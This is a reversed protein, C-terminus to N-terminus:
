REPRERGRDESDGRDSGGASSTAPASAAPAASSPTASAPPSGPPAARVAEALKDLPLYLINGGSKADIVIKRSRTLIGEMTEIYMRSRTVEPAQAYAGALESFREAEGEASAVTQKAYVDADTLERQATTQAKPVVDSAYANAEDIMRRRDEEAKSADRQATLVADPLQLDTMLVSTVAIGAQYIDLARQIRKQAETTIQGRADGDLLASLEYQGILERLATDSVERLTGAQDRVQFLYHVPDTVRYQVSWGVDVLSQDSTLMLAKNDTNNTTLAVNVKKLTEIPWPWHWGHGPQDLEVFRGFRQLIGRDNSDVQYYGSALWVVVVLGVLVGIASGRGSGPRWLRQVRRQWRRLVDELSSDEANGRPPLRKKDEGPQNWAM